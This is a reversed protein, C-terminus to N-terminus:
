EWSGHEECMDHLFIIQELEFMGKELYRQDSTFCDGESISRIISQNVLMEHAIYNRYEVVSKLLSIFDSRLGSKELEKRVTGLTWRQIKKPDYGYRQVLINKLGFELVQAKGMFMSYFELSNLNKYKELRHSVADIIEHRELYPKDSKM